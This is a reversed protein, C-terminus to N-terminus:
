FINCRSGRLAATPWRPWAAEAETPGDDLRPDRRTVFRYLEAADFRADPVGAVALRACLAQFAANM